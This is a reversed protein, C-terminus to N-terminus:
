NKQSSNKNPFDQFMKAIRHSPGFFEKLVTVHLTEKELTDINTQAVKKAKVVRDKLNKIPRELNENYINKIKEDDFFPAGVTDNRLFDAHNNLVVFMLYVSQMLNRDENTVIIEGCYREWINTNFKMPQRKLWMEKHVTENSLLQGMGDLEFSISLLARINAQKNQRATKITELLWFLSFTLAPTASVGFIYISSDM